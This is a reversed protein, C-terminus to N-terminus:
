LSVLLLASIGGNKSSMQTYHDIFNPWFEFKKGLKVFIPGLSLQWKLANWWNLTRIKRVLGLLVRVIKGDESSM